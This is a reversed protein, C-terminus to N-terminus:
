RSSAPRQVVEAVSGAATAGADALPAMAEPRVDHVVLGGPWAALRTAMPQGIQGLGIFGVAPADAATM